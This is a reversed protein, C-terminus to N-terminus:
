SSPEMVDEEAFLMSESEACGYGRIFVTPCWTKEFTMCTSGMVNCRESSVGM